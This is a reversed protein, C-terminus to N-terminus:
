AAGPRAGTGPCATCAPCPSSRRRSGAAGGFRACSGHPAVGAGRTRM